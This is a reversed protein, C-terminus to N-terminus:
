ICGAVSTAGVKRIFIQSSQYNLKKLKELLGVSSDDSAVVSGDYTLAIFANKYDKELYEKLNEYIQDQLELLSVIEYDSVNGTENDEILVIRIEKVRKGFNGFNKILAKVEYVGDGFGSEFIVAKGDHGQGFPISIYKETMGNVIYKEYDEESWEKGVIYCPDSIMLTGSDVAVKGITIWNESNSNKEMSKMLIVIENKM